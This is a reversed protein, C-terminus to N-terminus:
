IVIKVIYNDGNKHVKLAFPKLLTFGSVLWPSTSTQISLSNEFKPVDLFLLNEM